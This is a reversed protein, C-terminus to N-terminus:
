SSQVGVDDITGHCGEVGNNELKHSDCDILIDVDLQGVLVGNVGVKQISFHEVDITFHCVPTQINFSLVNTEIGARRQGEAFEEWNSVLLFCLVDSIGVDLVIALRRELKGSTTRRVGLLGLHSGHGGIKYKFLCLSHKHFRSAALEVVTRKYLMVHSAVTGAQAKGKGNDAQTGACLLVLVLERMHSPVRRAHLLIFNFQVLKNGVSGDNSPWRAM